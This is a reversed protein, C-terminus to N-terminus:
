IELCIRRLIFATKEGLEVRPLYLKRKLYGYLGELGNIHNGKGDSYENKSHNV